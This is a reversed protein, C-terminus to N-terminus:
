TSQTMTMSNITLGSPVKPYFYTSKPAFLHGRSALAYIDALPIGRLVWAWSGPRDGAARIAQAADATYEVAINSRLLEELAWSGVRHVATAPHAKPSGALHPLILHHLLSVDLSAIPGAVSPHELWALLAEPKLTVQYLQRGDCCGFRGVRRQEPPAPDQLWRTVVALDAVPEVVCLQRLVELVHGGGHHIVGGGAADASLPDDVECASPAEPAAAPPPIIRHIPRVVLGSDAMSVFYSMLAGYRDRHAYAVEFRHHGDAILMTVPALRRAIEEILEPSTLAWLRLAEGGLRAQGIPATREVARELLSQVQRGADPYVCFIPCLNAPLAHLLKTRDAKPAALTAEHRYVIREMAGQLGLLGIFGLRTCSTEQIHFTQEVLYLAPVPDPQLIGQGCWAEFDRRARTYRNDSPTDQPDQKGLILRVVNYRSARYLQEQQKPDIVDYPPAIVQSLDHISQPNYRLARFPRIAAM